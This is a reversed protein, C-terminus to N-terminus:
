ALVSEIEYAPMAGNKTCVFASLQVAMRHTEKLSKGSLLGAVMAATFSDGAGVTDAVEVKPTELFSTETPTILYSGETGCTLALLKLGYRDILTRCIEEDSGSLGFLDALIRIEDDNIKLVNCLQLSEEILQKSFFQQRLNIDFVKLSSDPVLSVFERISARSVEGRQALSGFCVARAHKALDAYESKMGIFDWAVPQCIEYQPIGNGSLTVQVIGTVHDVEQLDYQLGVADLKQIIEAGLEDHGIASIALSDIGLRSVHYAFNCPAGGMQKHDPFVDWLLEGIGIVLPKKNM